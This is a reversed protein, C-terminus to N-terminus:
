DQDYPAFLDDPVWGLLEGSGIHPSLSGIVAPDTVEKVVVYSGAHGDIKHRGVCTRRETCVADPLTRLTRVTLPTHTSTVPNEPM